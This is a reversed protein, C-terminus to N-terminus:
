LSHIAMEIEAQAVNNVRDRQRFCAADIVLVQAKRGFTGANPFAHRSVKRNHGIVHLVVAAFTEIEGRKHSVSCSEAAVANVEASTEQTNRDHRLGGAQEGRLEAGQQAISFEPVRRAETQQWTQSGRRGHTLLDRSAVLSDPLGVM